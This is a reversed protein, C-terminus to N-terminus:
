PYKVSSRLKLLRNYMNDLQLGSQDIVNYKLIIGYVESLNYDSTECILVQQTGYGDIPHVISLLKM